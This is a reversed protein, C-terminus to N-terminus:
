LIKQGLFANKSTVYRRERERERETETETEVGELLIIVLFFRYCTEETLAGLSKGSLGALALFIIGSSNIKTLAGKRYSGRKEPSRLRLEQWVGFIIRCFNIQTVAGSARALNKPLLGSFLEIIYKEHRYTNQLTHTYIYIYIYMHIDREREREGGRQKQRHRDTERM